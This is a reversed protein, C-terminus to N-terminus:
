IIKRKRTFADIVTLTDCAAYTHTASIRKDWVPKVSQVKRECYETESLVIIENLDFGYGYARSCDQSPRYLKGNKQIISGASRASKVDSVVPNLPHPTWHGGFLDDSYYLFLEVNPAAAENEALATFLWWKKQHHVLTTDVAHVNKFLSQKFIWQYPFETCEYLDITQNAGSEPVMYFKGNWEFVHPYSLHYDRKLIEVPQRHNGQEDMEMVSLHGKGTTNDMEEIFIFYKGNVKLIHPDAWFKVRPPILKQFTEFQNAHERNLSFLLIWHDFYFARQIIEKVQRFLMRVMIVLAAGNSPATYKRPVCDAALNFKQVNQLFKEEGVRRLLEIQRPLFSAAAWFYYSRHRAPSLPYTFFYSRYIVQNLPLAGGDARLVSGTESRKEVVEWLGAPGGTMKLDNGHYYSWTGYKSIALSKCDLSEFGFKILIDLGYEKIQQAEKPSLTGKEHVQIPHATISPVEALLGSIDQASFPDPQKAFLKKDIRSYLSYLFSEAPVGVNREGNIIVLSLEAANGDMIRKVVGAVWAPVQFSDLFIGLRLKKHDMIKKEAM